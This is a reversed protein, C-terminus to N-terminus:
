KKRSKFKRLIDVLIEDNKIDGHFHLGLKLNGNIEDFEQWRVLVASEKLISENGENKKVFRIRVNNLEYSTLEIFIPLRVHIGIGAVAIDIFEAPIWKDTEKSIYIYVNNDGEPNFSEDFKVGSNENFFEDLSPLDGIM